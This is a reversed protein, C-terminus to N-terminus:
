NTRPLGTCCAASWLLVAAAAAGAVAAAAPALRNLMRHNLLLSPECRSYIPLKLKSAVCSSRIAAKSFYPGMWTLLGALLLLLVV